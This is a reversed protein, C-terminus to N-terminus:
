KIVGFAMTRGTKGADRRHSFFLSPNDYTCMGCIHINDPKVGTDLLLNKVGKWLDMYIEGKRRTFINSFVKQKKLRYVDAGVNYCCPGIAPSVAAVLKVPNSGFEKKMKRITKVIIKNAVGRWGSHVAAIVKHEPDAIITGTCDAVRVGAALGPIDTIIADAETNLFNKLNRYKTWPGPDLTRLVLINDGHVQKAATIYKIKFVKEITKINKTVSKTCDGTHMGINLSDFPKKSFGGVRTSFAQTFGPLRNIADCALFRLGGKKLISFGKPIKRMKVQKTIDNRAASSM